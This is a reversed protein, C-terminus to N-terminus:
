GLPSASYVHVCLDLSYRQDSRRAPVQPLTVQGALRRCEPARLDSGDAFVGWRGGSYILRERSVGAVCQFKWVRILSNEDLFLSNQGGRSISIGSAAIARKASRGRWKM